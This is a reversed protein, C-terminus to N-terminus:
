VEQFKKELAYLIDPLNNGHMAKRLEVQDILKIIDDYELQFDRIDDLKKEVMNDLYKNEFNTYTAENQAGLWYAYMLFADFIGFLCTIPEMIDWSYKYYCGWQTFVIQLGILYFLRKLRKHSKLKYSERIDLKIQDYHDKKKYLVKLFERYLDKKNSIHQTHHKIVERVVSKVANSTIQTEVAEKEIEYYVRSVFPSMVERKIPNLAIANKQYEEIAESQLNISQIPWFENEQFNRVAITQNNNIQIYFQDRMVFFLPTTDHYEIFDNSLLTIDTIDDDAHLTRAKWEGILMEPEFVFMNGMSYVYRNSDSNPVKKIRVVDDINSPVLFSFFRNNKAFCNTKLINTDLNKLTKQLFQPKTISRLVNTFKLM